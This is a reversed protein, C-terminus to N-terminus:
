ESTSNVSPQSEQVASIAQSDQMIVPGSGMLSDNSHQQTETPASDQQSFVHVIRGSESGSNVDVSSPSGSLISSTMDIVNVIGDAYAVNTSAFVTFLVFLRFRM